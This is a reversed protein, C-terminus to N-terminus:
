EGELLAKMDDFRKKAEQKRFSQGTFFVPYCTEFIRDYIRSYRIDSARQMDRLSVNTTLIMPLGARYRSDVIDYVKELAYDTEREAGLDDIILLKARNLNSILRGEDEAFNKSRELLKVFSTMAVPVGKELLANAICAAAFTKGTGVGGYFLLGQNQKVMEPFREVYRRCLKLAKENDPTEKFVSFNQAKFKEDMLSRSRLQEVLALSERERQRREEEELEAQKCKCLCPAIRDVAGGGLLSLQLRCEKPTKCKGCYLLGDKVYDDADRKQRAQATNIMGGVVASFPALEAMM